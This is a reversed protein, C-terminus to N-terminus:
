GSPTLLRYVDPLSTSSGSTSPSEVTILMTPTDSLVLHGDANVSMYKGTYVNQIYYSAGATPTQGTQASLRPSCLLFLSVLILPLPVISLTSYVWRATFRKDLGEDGTTLHLITIM